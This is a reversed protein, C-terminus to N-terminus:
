RQIDDKSLDKFEDTHEHKSEVQKSEGDSLKTDNSSENSDNKTETDNL